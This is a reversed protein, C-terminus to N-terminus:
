RAEGYSADRYVSETDTFHHRGFLMRHHRTKMVDNDDIIAVHNFVPM